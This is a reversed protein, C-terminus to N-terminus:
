IIHQSTPTLRQISLCLREAIEIAEDLIQEEGTDYVYDRLALSLSNMYM